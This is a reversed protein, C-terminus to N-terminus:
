IEQEDAVTKKLIVLQSECGVKFFHYLVNVLWSYRHLRRFYLPHVLDQYVVEQGPFYRLVDQMSFSALRNSSSHILDLWVVYGNEKLNRSMERALATRFDEELISSFVLVQMVMDFSESEFPLSGGSYHVWHISPNRSKAVAIREPSLDIGVLNEPRAGLEVLYRLWFGYGCGVDLINMAGLDVGITNLAKVVIAHNHEHLLFGVANRPHYINAHWDEVRMTTDRESYMDLLRKEEKGYGRM